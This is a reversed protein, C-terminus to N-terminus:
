NLIAVKWLYEGHQIKSRIVETHVSEIHMRYTAIFFYYKFLIASAYSITCNKILKNM